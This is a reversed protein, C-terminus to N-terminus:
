APQVTVSGALVESAPAKGSWLEYGAWGLVLFLPLPGVVNLIQGILSSPGPGNVFFGVVALVAEVIMMYGCWRPYIEERLAADDDAVLRNALAADLEALSARGSQAAAV